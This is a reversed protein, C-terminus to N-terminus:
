TPLAFAERTQPEPSIPRMDNNPQYSNPLYIVSETYHQRQSTPIVVHDGIIYDIYEAGLTGPYGLYNIQIPAVRRSFLDTRANKTFGNRHVAIDLNFNKIFSHIKVKRVNNLDVFHDVAEVIKARMEDFRKPGYSFAFIEFTTRDHAKLLGSMLHMGPHDHFDASFYGVRIRRTPHNPYRQFAAPNAPHVKNIYKQARIKHRKPSDDAALMTFPSIAGGTVGLTEVHAQEVRLTSWDCMQALLHIKHARPSAYDPSIKLASNYCELAKGLQGFNQFLAGLKTYLNASDPFLTVAKRYLNIASKLEGQSELLEGLHHYAEGYAKKLEIASEYARIAEANMSLKEFCNGARIYAEAYDPKALLARRYITLANEIKGEGEVIRGLKLLAEPFQPKIGLARQYLTKADDLNNQEQFVVALNYLSDVHIPDHSLALKYTKAAKAYEGVNFFCTGLSNQVRINEPAHKLAREYFKTARLNDGRLRLTDGLNIAASILLPQLKLATDFAIAAEGLRDEQKLIVGYNNQYEANSPEIKVAKEFSRIANKSDGLSIYIVGLINWLRSKNEFQPLLSKAIKLADVFNRCDYSLLIKKLSTEFTNQSTNNLGNNKM